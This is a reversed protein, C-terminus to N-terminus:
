TRAKVWPLMRALVDDRDFYHHKLAAAVHLVIMAATIWGLIEHSEHFFHGWERPLPLPPVVFSGFFRMPFIIKGTSVMAWGSLPLILMVTYFGFHSVRALTREIPTMHVPLPPPRNGLRWAIRALALVLVVLGTSKHIQILTFGLQKESPVASDLLPGLVWLGAVLNAILLVAITWHFVIAVQSYRTRGRADVDVALNGAQSM